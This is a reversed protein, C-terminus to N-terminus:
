RFHEERQQKWRSVSQPHAVGNTSMSATRRLLVASVAAAILESENKEFLRERKYRQQVFHTDFDGDLFKEDDLVFRCFPITTKVGDVQFEELARRMAAITAERTEGWTIVKAILPDYYVSITDGSQFGSDVRVRPGQPLLYRELKGTSPFFSNAPDEAYIRCEMAHGRLAISEQPLALKKGEAINIQERVLDLGLVSETVPHEVQLRTNVELFYFNKEADVLFEVTGANSYNASQILRVAAEGIRMRLEPTMLPSPSEEIVKQHRRQISCEREGLYIANGYNDALVQIEVHRPKEVYKELYVRDDGFASQAESRASRLASQFEKASSVVRMGKGGGGAAAKLLVPFGVEKAAKLGDADDLIADETGQVMPVGAKRALKRAETKDGLLKMARPSPGIFLIGASLVAEAFESNESLFGYGPHIADVKAQLAIKLIKNQNLYSEAATVGGLPYAEDALQIHLSTRDPESFVAVTTIGMERCTRLVRVAIEARNAILLRNIPRQRM